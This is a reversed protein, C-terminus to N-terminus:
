CATSDLLREPANPVFRRFFEADSIRRHSQVLERWERFDSEALRAEVEAPLPQMMEEMARAVREEFVTRVMAAQNYEVDDWTVPYPFKKRSFHAVHAETVCKAGLGTIWARTSIDQESRGWTRFFPSFGGMREYSRRLVMYCAGVVM